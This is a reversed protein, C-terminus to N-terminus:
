FSSLYGIHVKLNQYSLPLNKRTGMALNISFIGAATQLNIGTGIGMFLDNFSSDRGLQELWGGTAFGNFYSQPGTFFRFESEMIAYSSAILSMEDFGRVSRVGGMRYLLNGPINSGNIFGANAGIGLTARRGTLWRKKLLAQIQLHNKKLVVENYLEPPLNANKVIERIGASGSFRFHFGDNLLQSHFGTSAYQLEIGYSNLRLDPNPPIISTNQWRSTNILSNSTHQWFAGLQLKNTLGFFLAPKFRIQIWSTDQKHLSFSLNTELPLGAPYPYSSQLNLIQTEGGPAQWSLDLKEGMSLTNVLLLNVLGTVRLPTENEGGGSLGAIGDFRNSPLRSLPLTLTAFGPAFSLQLPGDINVYTLERLKSQANNVLTESYTQGYSIGLYNELFAQNLNADGTIQINEFLIKNGPEAILDLYIITDKFHINEKQIRAFPYGNDSYFKLINEISKDFEAFRFTKEKLRDADPSIIGELSVEWNNIHYYFEKGASIYVTYEKDKVSISDLTAELFGMKQFESLREAAFVKAGEKGNEYDPYTFITQLTRGASDKVANQSLSFGSLFLLFSSIAVLLIM